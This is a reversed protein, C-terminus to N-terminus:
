RTNTLLFVDYGPGTHFPHEVGLVEQMFARPNWQYTFEGQCSRFGPKDLDRRVVIFARGGPKLLRQIKQLVVLGEEPGIVNIVYQSVITDFKGAPLPFFHSEGPDYKELGFHDADTGHGCGYDLMRGRLHGEKHLWTMPRGPKSRKIATLHAAEQARQRNAASLKPINFKAM